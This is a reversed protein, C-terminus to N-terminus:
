GGCGIRATDIAIEDIWAVFGPPATQFNLWGVELRDFKLPIRTGAYNGAGNMKAIETIEKGDFYFHYSQSTGDIHWEACHWAGDYMFDYSSGAAVEDGALAFVDVDFLFQHKGNPAQVTDVVRVAETGGGLPDQAIFGVLASHVYTSTTPVPLQVKYFVRGWFAAGFAAAPLAIMRSGSPIANMKLAHGGRAAQKNDVAVLSADGDTERTWGSPIAGVATGEFGECLLYKASGCNSAGGAGGVAGGDIDAVGGDPAAIGATGAGAIGGGTGAAGAPEGITGGMGAGAAGGVGAAAATGAAGGRGAASSGAAAGSAGATSGNGGGGGGNCALAAGALAAMLTSRLSKM